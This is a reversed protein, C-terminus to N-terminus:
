RVTAHKREAVYHTFVSDIFLFVILLCIRRSLRLTFDLSYLMNELHFFALNIKIM